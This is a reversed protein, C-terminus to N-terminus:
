WGTQSLVELIRVHYNHKRYVEEQGRRAIKEREEPHNLYWNVLSFTEESSKTWVLHYHNKFFNEVAPTWQTLYFGGCGLVEFTRMSMMTRSNDVSHLGIVIKASACASPLKEYPMIGGYYEPTIYYPRSTDLWWENGYIKIDYNNDVLAKIIDSIGKLRAPHYDYNNGIFIIDHAFEKKKEGQRHFSPHCGFMLLYADIGHKKYQEISEICPTFVHSSKEAYSLSLYDFAVPDEIAWYMHPINLEELLPFLKHMRNIGGDNFIYDPKFEKIHPLLSDERDLFVMKVEHGLDAFAAGIGYKILPAVNVFLLRM